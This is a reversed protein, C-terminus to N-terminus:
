YFNEVEAVLPRVKTSSGDVNGHAVAVFFGLRKAAGNFLIETPGPAMLM